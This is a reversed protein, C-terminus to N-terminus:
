KFKITGNNNNFSNVIHNKDGYENEIGLLYDTSVEFFISLLVIADCNPEIVGKEMKAISTQDTGIIEGLKKQTIKKDLRLYRINKGIINNKM